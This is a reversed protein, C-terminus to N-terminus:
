SLYWSLGNPFEQFLQSHQLALVSNRHLNVGPIYAAFPDLLVYITEAASHLDIIFYSGMEVESSKGKTHFSFAFINM